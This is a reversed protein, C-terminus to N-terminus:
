TILGQQRSDELEAELLAMENYHLAKRRALLEGHLTGQHVDAGFYPSQHGREGGLRDRLPIHTAEYQEDYYRQNKVDDASRHATAFHRADYHHSLAHRTDWNAMSLAGM